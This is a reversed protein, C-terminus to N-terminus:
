QDRNRKRQRDSLARYVYPVHPKTGPSTRTPGSAWQKLNWFNRLKGHEKEWMGRLPNGSVSQADSNNISRM